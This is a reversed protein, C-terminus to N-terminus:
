SEKLDLYHSRKSAEIQKSMENLKVEMQRQWQVKRVKARRIIDIFSNNREMDDSM